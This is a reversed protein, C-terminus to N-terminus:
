LELAKPTFLKDSRSIGSQPLIRAWCACFETNLGLVMCVCVHVCVCHVCACVCTHVCVHVAHVCMGSRVCVCVCIHARACMCVCM